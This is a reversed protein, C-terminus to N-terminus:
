ICKNIIRFNFIINVRSLIFTFFIKNQKETWGLESSQINNLIKNSLFETNYISIFPIMLASFFYSIGYGMILCIYIVLINISTLKWPLINVAGIWWTSYVKFAISLM